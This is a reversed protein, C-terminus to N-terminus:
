RYFGPSAASAAAAHKLVKLGDLWPHQGAGGPPSARGAIAGVLADLNEHFLFTLPKSLVRAATRARERFEERVGPDACAALLQQM